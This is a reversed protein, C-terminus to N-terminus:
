PLKRTPSVVVPPLPIFKERILQPDLAINRSILENKNDTTSQVEVRRVRKDNYVSIVDPRRNSVITKPPLGLARNYGHDLHVKCVDPKKAEKIAERLSRFKHGPTKTSQGSGDIKAKWPKSPKVITSPSYQAFEKAGQISAKLGGACRVLGLGSRAFGLATSGPIMEPAERIGQNLCGTYCGDQWYGSSLANAEEPTLPPGGLDGLDEPLDWEGPLPAGPFAIIKAPGDQCWNSLM